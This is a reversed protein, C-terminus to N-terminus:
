YIPVIVHGHGIEFCVGDDLAVTLLVEPGVDADAEEMLSPAPM